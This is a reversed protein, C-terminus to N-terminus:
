IADHTSRRSENEVAVIFASGGATLVSKRVEGNGKRGMPTSLYALGASGRVSIRETKQTLLIPRTDVSTGCPSAASNSSSVSPWPRVLESCTPRSLHLIIKHAPIGERSLASSTALACRM